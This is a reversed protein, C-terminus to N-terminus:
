LIIIIVYRTIDSMHDERSLSFETWNRKRWRRCHCVWVCVCVCESVYNSLCIFQNEGTLPHILQVVTTSSLYGGVEAAAPQITEKVAKEPTVPTVIEPEPTGQFITFLSLSLSLSPPSSLPM